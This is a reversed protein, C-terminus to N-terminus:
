SKFYSKLINRPLLPGAYILGTYLQILDAGNDLRKIANKASMIGGSSIVPLKNTIMKIRKLVGESTYCLPLGSLGGRIFNHNTTTNTAILGSIEYELCLEILGELQDGSMDPSVKVLIPKPKIHSLNENQVSDLLYKLPEVDLLTRLGPTNPSSVNLTFYDVNDYLQKVCLLYDKPAHRIETVRNKGINAGVIINTNKRQELRKNIKIVGDNNFGMFNILSEEHPFRFVRPRANGPQPKPTITGVEIFGFGLLGLSDVHNANKDFGAALGIPNPFNLGFVKKNFQEKYCFSNKIGLKNLHDLSKMAFNHSLEPNMKFLIPRIINKYIEM